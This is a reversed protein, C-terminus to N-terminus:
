RMPRGDAYQGAMKRVFIGDMIAGPRPFRGDMSTSRALHIRTNSNSTVREDIQIDGFKPVVQEIESLPTPQARWVGSLDPKGNLRPAPATLNPKGDKTRPARRDPYNLWQTSAPPVCVGALFTV